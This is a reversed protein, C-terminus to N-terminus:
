RESAMRPVTGLETLFDSDLATAVLAGFQEDRPLSDLLAAFEAPPRGRVLQFAREFDYANKPVSRTHARALQRFYPDFSLPHLNRLLHLSINLM